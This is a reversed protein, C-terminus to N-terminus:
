KDTNSGIRKDSVPSILSWNTGQRGDNLIMADGIIMSQLYIISAIIKILFLMVIM